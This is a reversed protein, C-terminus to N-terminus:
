WPAADARYSQHQERGLPITASMPTLERRDSRLSVGRIPEWPPGRSRIVNRHFRFESRNDRLSRTKQPSGTGVEGSCARFATPGHGGNDFVLREVLNMRAIGDRDVTRQVAGIQPWPRREGAIGIEILVEDLRSADRGPRRRKEESEDAGLQWSYARRDLPGRGPVM